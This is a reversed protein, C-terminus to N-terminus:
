KHDHIFSTNFIGKGTIFMKNLGPKRCHHLISGAKRIMESDQDSDSVDM